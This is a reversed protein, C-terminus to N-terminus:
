NQSMWQLIDKRIVGEFGVRRSVQPGSFCLHRYPINSTGATKAPRMMMAITPFPKPCTNRSSTFLNRDSERDGNTRFRRSSGGPTTKEHSSGSFRKTTNTSSNGGSPPPPKTPPPGGIQAAPKMKNLCRLIWNGLSRGVQIDKQQINKHVKLAVDFVTRNREHFFQRIKPHNPSILRRQIKLVLRYTRKLGLFYATALTIEWLVM